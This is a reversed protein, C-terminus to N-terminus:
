DNPGAIHFRGFNGDKEPRWEGIGVGFGAIRFFNVIQELSSVGANYTIPVVIDWKVFQGRFRIDATSGKLRVMDERMTVAGNIKLMEADIHFMRRADTMYMGADTAARVAAAKLGIAPFGFEANAVDKETPKQPKESIWYLSDVFDAFPDRIERGTAAKKMQANLLMKKAKESWAHCILPTDGILRIISNEQHFEPLTIKKDAM